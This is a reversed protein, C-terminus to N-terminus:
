HHRAQVRDPKKVHRAEQRAGDVVPTQDGQDVSLVTTAHEKPVALEITWETNLPPAHPDALALDSLLTPLTKRTFRGM